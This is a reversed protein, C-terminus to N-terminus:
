KTELEDRLHSLMKQLWRVIQQEDVIKDKEQELISSFDSDYSFYDKLIKEITQASTIHWHPQAHIEDANNYDDWEARFLQYKENDNDEGQFVSLSTRIIIIDQKTSFKIELYLWFDDFWNLVKVSEQPMDFRNVAWSTSWSDSFFSIKENAFASTQLCFDKNGGNLMLYKNESNKPNILIPYLGLLRKWSNINKIDDQGKM